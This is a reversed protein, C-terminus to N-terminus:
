RRQLQRARMAEKARELLNKHNDEGVVPKEMAGLYTALIECAPMVKKTSSSQWNQFESNIWPCDTYHSSDAQLGGREEINWLGVSAFCAKCQITVDIATSDPHKDWGFLALAFLSHDLSPTGTTSPPNKSYARRCFEEFATILNIKNDFKVGLSSINIGSIASIINEYRSRLVNQVIYFGKIEVRNISKPCGYDKWSCHEGHGEIIQAEFKDEYSIPEGPVVDASSVEPNLDVVVRQNCSRCEVTDKEVCSWGRLAWAVGSLKEPKGLWLSIDDRFTALRQRFADSNSPNFTPESESVAPHTSTRKARAILRAAQSPKEIKSLRLKKQPRQTSRGIAESSADLLRKFSRQTKDVVYAM